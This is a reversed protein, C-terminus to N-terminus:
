CNCRTEERTVGAIAVGLRILAAGLRVRFMWWRVGKAEFRVVTERLQRRITPGADLKVTRADFQPM